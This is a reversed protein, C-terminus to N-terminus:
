SDLRMPRWLHKVRDLSCDTGHSQFPHAVPGQGAVRFQVRTEHAAGALHGLVDAAHFDSLIITVGDM